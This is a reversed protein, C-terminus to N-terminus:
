IDRIDLVQMADDDDSQANDNDHEASGTEPPLSRKRAKDSIKTRRSRGTIVSSTGKGGKTHTTPATTVQRLQTTPKRGESESFGRNFLIVVADPLTKGEPTLYVHYRMRHSGNYEDGAHQLYGHGIFVSNAPITIREYKLVDGLALKEDETYHVFKHSGPCVMLSGDEPGTVIIFYGPSSISDDVLFDQHEVQIGCNKGSLLFRGGTRPFFSPCAGNDDLNLQSALLGLWVDLHARREALEVHESTELTEM